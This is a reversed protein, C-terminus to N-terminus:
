KEYLMLKNNEFWQQLSDCMDKKKAKVYWYYISKIQEDEMNDLDDSDYKDTYKLIESIFKDRDKMVIDIPPKVIIKKSNLDEIIDVIRQKPVMEMCVPGRLNKRSDKQAKEVKM